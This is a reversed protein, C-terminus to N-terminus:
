LRSWLKQLGAPCGDLPGRYTSTGARGPDALFYDTENSYTGAKLGRQVGTCGIERTTQPPQMEM